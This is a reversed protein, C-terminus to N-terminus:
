SMGFDAVLLTTQSDFPDLGLFVAPSFRFCRPPFPIRLLPVRLRDDDDTDLILEGQLLLLPEFFVENLLGEQQDFPSKNM